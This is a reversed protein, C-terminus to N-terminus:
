LLAVLRRLGLGRGRCFLWPGRTSPRAWNRWWHLLYSKAIWVFLNGGFCYYQGMMWADEFTEGPEALVDLDLLLLSFLFCFLVERRKEGGDIVAIDFCVVLPAFFFLRVPQCGAWVSRFWIRGNAGGRGGFNQELWNVVECSLSWVCRSVPYKGSDPAPAAPSHSSRGQLSSSPVSSSLRVRFVTSLSVAHLKSKRRCIGKGKQRRCM